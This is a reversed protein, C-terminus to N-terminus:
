TIICYGEVLGKLILGVLPWGSAGFRTIHKGLDTHLYLAPGMQEGGLGWHDRLQERGRRMGM